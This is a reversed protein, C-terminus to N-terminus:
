SADTAAEWRGSRILTNITARSKTRRQHRTIRATRTTTIGTTRPNKHAHVRRFLKV